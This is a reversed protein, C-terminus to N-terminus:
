KGEKVFKLWNENGTIGYLISAARPISSGHYIEIGQLMGKDDCEMRVKGGNNEHIILTFRGGYVFRGFRDTGLSAECEDYFEQLTLEGQRMFAGTLACVAQISEKEEKSLEGNM